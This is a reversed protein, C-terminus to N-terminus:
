VRVCLVRILRRPALWGRDRLRPSTSIDEIEELYKDYSAADPFSDRGRNYRCACVFVGCVRLFVRHPEVDGNACRCCRRGLGCPGCGWTM